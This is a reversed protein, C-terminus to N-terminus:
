VAIARGRLLEADVKALLGVCDLDMLAIAVDIDIQIHVALSNHQYLLTEAQCTM